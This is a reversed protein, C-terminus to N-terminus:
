LDPAEITVPEGHDSFSIIWTTPDDEVDDPEALSIEIIDNTETDVLLKIRIEDGALSGAVLQSIDEQAVVGSIEVVETGDVTSEDGIEVDDLNELVGGVGRDDDFILAPNFDFNSPAREWDGNLFNTTYADDGIVVLGVDFSAFGIQVSAEAQARDPRKLDGEVSKLEITENGDLYTNGDIDLDFHVTDTESWRNAVDDLLEDEPSEASISPDYDGRPPDVFYRHRFNPHDAQRASSPETTPTATPADDGGTDTSFADTVACGSILGGFVLTIIAVSIYSRLHRFTM